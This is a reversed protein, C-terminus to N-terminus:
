FRYAIGFQLRHSLEESRELDPQGDEALSTPAEFRPVGAWDLDYQVGLGLGPIAPVQWDLRATLGLAWHLGEDKPHTKLTFDQHAPDCQNVGPAAAFEVNCRNRQTGHASADFYGIEGHGGLTAGFGAGFPQVLILGGRLATRFDRLDVQARSSVDFLSFAPNPNELQVLSTSRQTDYGFAVGLEHLLLSRDLFQFPPPGDEEEDWCPLEGKLGGRLEVGRWELENRGRLGADPSSIGSSGAEEKWWGLGNVVGPEPAVSRSGSGEAEAYSGNLYLATGLGFTEPAVNPVYVWGSFSGGDLSSDLELFRKEEGGVDIVGLGANADPLGKWIVVAQGGVFGFDLSPTPLQLGTPTRERCDEVPMRGARVSLERLKAALRDWRELDVAAQRYLVLLQPHPGIGFRIENGVDYRFHAARVANDDAATRNAFVWDLWEKKEEFSCFREPLIPEYVPDYGPMEHGAYPVPPPLPDPPPEAPLCTIERTNEVAQQKEWAKTKLEHIRHQLDPFTKEDLNTSTRGEFEPRIEPTWIPSWMIEGLRVRSNELLELLAELRALAQEKNPEEPPLCYTEYRPFREIADAAFSIDRLTALFSEALGEADKPAASAGNAGALGLLIVLGFRAARAM